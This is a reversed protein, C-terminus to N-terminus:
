RNPLFQWRHAKAYRALKKDGEVAYAHGVLQLMPADSIHDGYAYCRSLDADPKAQLYRLIATSKGQGIMPEGMTKGSCIRKDEHLETALVEDVALWQALPALCEQFSGSVLVIKAGNKQHVQLAQLTSAIFVDERKQLEDFWASALKELQQKSVGRYNKYYLQNLCERKIKLKEFFKIKTTYFGYQFLGLWRFAAQKQLFYKFFHHTSKIKLLTGDVDFFVYYEPLPLVTPKM